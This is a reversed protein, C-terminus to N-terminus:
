SLKRVDEGGGCTCFISNVTSINGSPAKFFSLFYVPISSLVFKLLVLRGGLSLNKSKWGFLRSKFCDVMPYWFQLKRSNGGIPLGLYVFPLCGHKYNMVVAAEHLWSGVMNIAISKHFNVKLRSIKEFQLLVNKLARVNAWSEGGIM